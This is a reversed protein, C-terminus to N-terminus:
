FCSVPRSCIAFPPISLRNEDMFFHVSCILSLRFDQIQLSLDGESCGKPMFSCAAVLKWKRFESDVIAQVGCSKLNCLDPNDKIVFARFLKQWVEWLAINGRYYLSQRRQLEFFSRRSYKTKVILTSRSSTLLFYGLFEYHKKNEKKLGKIGATGYMSFCKCLIRYDLDRFHCITSGM